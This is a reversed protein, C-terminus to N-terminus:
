LARMLAETQAVLEEAVHLPATHQHVHNVAGARVGHAVEPGDVELQLEEAGFQLALRLHGHRHQM